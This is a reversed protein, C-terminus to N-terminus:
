LVDGLVELLDGRVAEDLPPTAEVRGSAHVEVLGKSDELVVGQPSVRETESRWAEWDTKSGQRDLVVHLRMENRAEAEELLRAMAEEDLGVLRQGGAEDADALALGEGAEVLRYTATEAETGFLWDVLGRLALLVVAVLVVGLAILLGTPPDSATQLLGGASPDM